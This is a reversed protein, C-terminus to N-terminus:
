PANPGVEAPTLPRNTPKAMSREDAGVDKAPGREQGDMDETVWRFAGAAADVAPSKASPRWLGDERELLPDAETVGELPARSVTGGAGAFAINGEWRTNTPTVFLRVLTDQSGAFINNAITLGSPPLSWWNGQFGGGDYGIELAGRNNVLTNFAIVADRIRFHKTPPQGDGYEANGSTVALPADWLTGTLGELYNNVVVMSDGYLRVGGTGLAWTTGASDTYTGTRGNGLIFNGDVTNRNGHRLSLSGLCERFTNHRIVNDCSKVSVYEPDGDCREFLNRELLTHGSSLSFEASGIRIAELVNHVRPGINRFYNRDITDYQSVRFGASRTGEVTIFNGLVSKNEFLNHDIRNGRSVADPNDESGTIVVWSARKTDLLHFRNRTIRVGSCGRLEIAPGDTSRFDLGEIVVHSATELVFRSDGTVVAGNRSNATVVVPRGPMGGTSVTIAGNLDWTGDALVISDAPQARVVAARLEAATTVPIRAGACVGTGFLVLVCAAAPRFRRDSVQAM